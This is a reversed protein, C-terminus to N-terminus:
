RVVSVTRGTAEGGGTIAGAGTGAGTALAWGSRSGLGARSALGGRGVRSSFRSAFAAAAGLGPRRARRRSVRISGHDIIFVENRSEIASPMTMTTETRMTQVTSPAASTHDEILWVTWSTTPPWSAELKLM